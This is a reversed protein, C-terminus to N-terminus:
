KDPIINTDTCGIFSAVCLPGLLFYLAISLHIRDTRHNMIMAEM